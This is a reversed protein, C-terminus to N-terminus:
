IRIALCDNPSFINTRVIDHDQLGAERVSCSLETSTAENNIKRSDDKPIQTKAALNPVIGVESSSPNIHNTEKTIFPLLFSVNYLSKYSAM